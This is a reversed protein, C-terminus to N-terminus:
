RSFITSTFLSTCGLFNWLTSNNLQILLMGTIYSKKKKKVESTCFGVFICAMFTAVIMNFYYFLAKIQFGNIVGMKIFEEQIESYVSHYFYGYISWIVLLYLATIVPRPKGFPYEIISLGVLWNIAYVPLLGTKYYLWNFQRHRKRRVFIKNENKSPCIFM